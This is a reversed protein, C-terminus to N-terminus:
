TGQERETPISFTAIFRCRAYDLEVTGALGGRLNRELPGGGGPDIGVSARDMAAGVSRVLTKL